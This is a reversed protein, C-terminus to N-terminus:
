DKVKAMIRVGVRIRVKIIGKGFELRYNFDTM